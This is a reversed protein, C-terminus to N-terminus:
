KASILKNLDALDIPALTCDFPSIDTSMNKMMEEPTVGKGANLNIFRIDGNNRICIRHEGTPFGDEGVTDPKFIGDIIIDTGKGQTMASTLKGLDTTMDSPGVNDTIVNDYIHIAHCFPDFAESKYPQGTILWSSISMGVTNHNKVINSYIEVEKHAMITFGSGPPLTAVVTGKPAFNEHNNNEVINNFMKVKAGNAQPLDPMDFVLLGGSNERATNEYVEGNVSNEIEIGAVNHHALNNRVVFNTTQGVYIGADSAYSAECNEMLVNKCSVPYLGYGGNTTLAGGTWTAELDRIVVGDCKQVKLADGKTDQLTFGQLTLKDSNKIILGEAGEIQGKFSLITKGKGQGKITVNPVGDLSLPRQFNFTGEPLDIVAGDEAQILAALLSSELNEATLTGDSQDGSKCGIMSILVLSLFLSVYKM